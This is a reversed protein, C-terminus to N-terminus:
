DYDPCDNAGNPATDIGGTWVKSHGNETQYSFQILGADCNTFQHCGAVDDKSIGIILTATKGDGGPDPQTPIQQKKPFSKTITRPNSKIHLKLTVESGLQPKTKDTIDNTVKIAVFLAESGSNNKYNSIAHCNIINHPTINNCDDPDAEQIINNQDSYGFSSYVVCKDYYVPKPWSEGTYTLTLPKSYLTTGNVPVVLYSFQCSTGVTDDFMHYPLSISYKGLEVEGVISDFLTKKNNICFIMVDGNQAGPYPQIDVLFSSEAHTTLEGGNEFGAIKPASLYDDPNKPSNDIINLTSEAPIEDVVDFVQTYLDIDVPQMEKAYIYFILRGQNDTSLLIGEGFPNKKITVRTLNDFEYIKVKELNEPAAASIFAFLHSIPADQKDKIIAMARTRSKGGNGNPPNNPQTPVELYNQDYYVKLTDTNLTRASYIFNRSPFTISSSVALTFQVYANNSIDSDVELILTFMRPNDYHSSKELLKIYKRKTLYIDTGPPIPDDSKLTVDLVLRQGIIVSSGSIISPVIDNNM